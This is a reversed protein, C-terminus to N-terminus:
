AGGKVADDLGIWVSAGVAVAGDPAARDILDQHVTKLVGRLRANEQRDRICM